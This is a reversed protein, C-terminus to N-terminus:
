HGFGRWQLQHAPQVPHLRSRHQRRRGGGHRAPGQAAMSGARLHVPLSERLLVARMLREGTALRTCESFTVCKATSM